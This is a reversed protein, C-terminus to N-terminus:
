RRRRGRRGPPRVARGSRAPEGLAPQRRHQHVGADVAEPERRTEHSSATATSCAIPWRIESPCVRIPRRSPGGSWMGDRRLSSRPRAPRAPPRPQLEPGLVDGVHQERELRGLRGRRPQEGTADGAITHALSGIARPAIRATAALRAVAHGAVHRHDAEVVREQHVARLRRQRRHALRDLRHAPHGDLQQVPQDAPVDIECSSISNSGSSTTRLEVPGTGSGRQDRACM